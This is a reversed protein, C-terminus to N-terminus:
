AVVCGCGHMVLSSGGRSLWFSPWRREAEQKYALSEEAVLRPQVADSLKAEVQEQRGDRVRAYQAQRLMSIAM